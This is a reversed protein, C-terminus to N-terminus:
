GATTLASMMSVGEMPSQKISSAELITPVIRPSGHPKSEPTTGEIKGGFKQPPAPLQGGSITMAVSPAGPVGTIQRALAGSAAPM